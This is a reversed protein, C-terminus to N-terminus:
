CSANVWVNGSARFSDSEDLFSCDWVPFCDRIQANYGGVCWVFGFAFTDAECDAAVEKSVIAVGARFCGVEGCDFDDDVANDGCWSSLTKSGIVFIEVEVSSKVTFVHADGDCLNWWINHAM